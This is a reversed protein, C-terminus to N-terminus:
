TAPGASKEVWRVGLTIALNTLLIILVIIPIFRRSEPFGYSMPLIAIVASALGRPMFLFLVKESKGADVDIGPSHSLRVAVGRALLIAIYIAFGELIVLPTMDELCLLMGLFVFFFTRVLFTLEAHFGKIDTGAIEKAVPETHIKPFLRALVTPGNSLVLGFVFVGLVGSSHLAESVGYVILMGAFTMLYTLPQGALKNLVGLWAFGGGIGIVLAGTLSSFILPGLDEAFRGESGAINLIFVAFLVALADSLSSELELITRVQPNVKVARILPIVIAASTCAIASALLAAYIPASGFVLRALLFTLCFTLVFSLGLLKLAQRWGTLMHEFDLHLGGEFLIVLLAFAGFYPAVSQVLDINMHLLSRLGFGAAILLLADPIRTLRFIWSGAFGLCIIAAIIFFLASVTITGDM